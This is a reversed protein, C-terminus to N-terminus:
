NLVAFLRQKRRPIGSFKDQFIEARSEFGIKMGPCATFCDGDEVFDDFQLVAGRGKEKGSYELIWRIIAM